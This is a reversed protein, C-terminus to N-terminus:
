YVQKVIHLVDVHKKMKMMWINLILKLWKKKIM